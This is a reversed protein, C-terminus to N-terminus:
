DGLKNKTYTNGEGEETKIQGCEIAKLIQEKKSYFAETEWSIFEWLYKTTTRSSFAYLDGEKNTYFVFKKTKPNYSAIKCDYSIFDVSVDTKLVVQNKALTRAKTM